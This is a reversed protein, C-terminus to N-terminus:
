DTAIVASSLQLPDWVQSWGVVASRDLSVYRLIFSYVYLYRLLVILSSHQIFLRDMECVLVCLVNCM